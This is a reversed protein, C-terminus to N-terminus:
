THGSYAYRSRAMYVCRSVEVNWQRESRPWGTLSHTLDNSLNM